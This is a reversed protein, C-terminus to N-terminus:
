AFLGTLFTGINEWFSPEGSDQLPLQVHITIHQAQEAPIMGLALAAKEIEELNCEESYRQKLTANSEKLTDVYEQMAENEQQAVRLQFVGVFMLVLMVAAVVIGCLALPDVYVVRKKRPLQKVAQKVSNVPRPAIKKAATGDTYLQIYRIEPKYAM